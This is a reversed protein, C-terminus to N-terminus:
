GQLCRGRIREIVPWINACKMDSGITKVSGANTTSEATTPGQVSTFEENGSALTEATVRMCKAQETLSICDQFRGLAYAFYARTLRISQQLRSILKWITDRPM